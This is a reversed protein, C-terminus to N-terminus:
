YRLPVLQKKTVGQVVAKMELEKDPQCEVTLYKIGFKSLDGM